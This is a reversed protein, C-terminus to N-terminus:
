TDGTKFQWPDCTSHMHGMYTWFQGMKLLSNDDDSSDYDDSSLTDEDSTVYQPSSSINYKVKKRGEKAMLCIHKSLKPFLLKSSSGKDKIAIIAVEDSESEFSEDSINWEQGVHSKGFSKKTYKRDKKYGKDIKKKKDNDEEKREYPCQAIFNGNKECNYWSWFLVGILEKSPGQLL